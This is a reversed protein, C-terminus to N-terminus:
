QINNSICYIKIFTLYISRLVIILNSIASQLKNIKKESKGWWWFCFQLLHIQAMHFTIWIFGSIRERDWQHQIASHVVSKSKQSPGHCVIKQCEQNTHFKSHMLMIWLLQTICYLHWRSLERRSMYDERIKYVTQLHAEREAHLKNFEPSGPELKELQSVQFACLGCGGLVSKTANKLDQHNLRWIKCFLRYSGIQVEELKQKTKDKM